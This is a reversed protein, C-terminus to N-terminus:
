VERYPFKKHDVANDLITMGRVAALEIRQLAAEDTQQRLLYLLGYVVGSLLAAAERIREDHEDNM